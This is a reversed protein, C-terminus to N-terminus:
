KNYTFYVIAFVAVIVFWIWTVPNVSGTPVNGAYKKIMTGVDGITIYGKKDIDLGKNLEYAQSGSRSLVTSEPKGANAPSYVIMYLDTLTSVKSGANWFALYKDVYTLQALRTMASLAAQTTGLSAATSARFGILGVAGNGHSGTKFTTGSEFRMVIMLWDSVFGYKAAITRVKDTFSTRENAPILEEYIM